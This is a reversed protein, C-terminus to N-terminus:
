EIQSPVSFFVFSSYAMHLEKLEYIFCTFFQIRFSYLLFHLFPGFGGGSTSRLSVEPSRLSGARQLLQFLPGTHGQFELVLINAIYKFSQHFNVQSTWDILKVFKELGHINLNCRLAYHLIIHYSVKFLSICIKPKTNINANLFLFLM